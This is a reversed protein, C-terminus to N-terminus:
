NRNRGTYQFHTALDRALEGSEMTYNAEPAVQELPTGTSPSARGYDPMMLHNRVLFNFSRM